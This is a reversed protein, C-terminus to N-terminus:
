RTKSGAVGFWAALEKPPFISGTVMKVKSRSKDAYTFAGGYRDGYEFIDVPDKSKSQVADTKTLPPADAPLVSKLTQGAQTKDIPKADYLVQVAFVVGNICQVLYRGGKGDLERSLFQSHGATSAAPNPDAGFSITANKLLAESMGSKVDALPITKEAAPQEDAHPHGSCSSLALATALGTLCHVFTSSKQTSM